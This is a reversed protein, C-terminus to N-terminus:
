ESMILQGTAICEDNPSLQRHFHLRFRGGLVQVLMDVLLANQFVGGSFAIDTVAQKEAVKGIIRVLARHAAAAINQAPTKLHLANLADQFFQRTDINGNPLLYVDRFIDDARASAGSALHELRMAAEGEYTNRDCCGILSALADFIRGMSTTRMGAHMKLAKYYFDRERRDFKPYLLPDAGELDHAIALASLRPERAMKDGALLPFDQWQAALTMIRNQWRFFEGGRSRKEDGYGHGDWIVGLVPEQVDLLDNEALVAAFHAEHHQVQRFAAGWQAALEAAIQTSFYGPHRDAVVIEPTKRLLRFFHDAMFRYRQQTDFHGLDGLWPSLYVNGCQSWSFASKMDAGACFVTRKPVRLGSFDASPALGRARRLVVPQVTKETFRMVSDDQPAAIRRNHDLMADAVAPLEARATDDDFVIPSGGHNGSTAVLPKGFARGIRELLPAYPLMAGIHGLGPAVSEISVGSAPAERLKLVLIPSVPGTLMKEEEPRLIVDGALMELNPYLVAFPKAPRSKRERQRMVAEPNTADCLLLFGGIGKAAVVQGSRLRDLTYELADVQNDTSEGTTFDEFFLQIGCEPCSNTQSYYRRDTPLDYETACVPCMRFDRMATLERDYPLRESISFRPGCNTCTIFAYAFRRDRQDHLERRCDGCMAFDPSLLLEADAADDSHVITFTDFFMAPVEQLSSNTIRANEPTETLIKELFRDAMDRTANCDIHVGNSTNRVQGKLGFTQALRYVFPRFGVGQVRGKLHIHFSSEANM